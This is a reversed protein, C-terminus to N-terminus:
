FDDIEGGVELHRMLRRPHGAAKALDERILDMHARIAAYNYVEKFIHPNGYVSRPIMRVAYSVERTADWAMSKTDYLLEGLKWMIDLAALTHNEGICHNSTSPYTNKALLALADPNENFELTDYIVHDIEGASVFATMWAVAAPNSNLAMFYPNVKEPTAMLFAVAAANNNASLADFDIEEPRTLLLAVASPHNNASFQRWKIRDPTELLLAVADPHNNESIDYWSISDFHKRLLAVAAASKNGSMHSWQIDQPTKELFAVAASNTNKSFYHFNIYHKPHNLLWAVMESCPNESIARWDIVEEYRNGLLAKGSEIREVCLDLYPRLIEFARPHPNSCLYYLNLVKEYLGHDSFEPRLQFSVFGRLSAGPAFSHAMEPRNNALQRPVTTNKRAQFTRIRLSVSEPSNDYFLPESM